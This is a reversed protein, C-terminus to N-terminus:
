SGQRWYTCLCNPRFFKILSRNRGKMEKPAQMHWRNWVDDLTNYQTTNIWEHTKRWLLQMNRSCPCTFVYESGSSRWKWYLHFTYLRTNMHCNHNITSWSNLLFQFPVNIWFPSDVQNQRAHFIPFLKGIYQPKNGWCKNPTEEVKLLLVFCFM